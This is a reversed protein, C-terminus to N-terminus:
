GIIALTDRLRALTSAPDDRLRYDTDTDFSTSREGIVVLTAGTELAHEANEATPDITLQTGAAIYVDCQEARSYARLRDHRAPPEGALVIGPGLTGGCAHCRRLGTTQKPTADVTRECYECRAVDARGHFEICDDVSLGAARLLGFVNETIVTSIHGNEVLEVIREHIPQPKTKTPEMAAEDWFDLWDDWVREPTTEFRNTTFSGDPEGWVAEAVEAAPLETEALLEPGAHLLVDDGEQILRACKRLRPDSM